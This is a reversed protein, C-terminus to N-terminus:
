LPPLDFEALVWDLVRRLGRETGHARHWCLHLTEESPAPDRWLAVLEGTKLATELLHRPALAVGHGSRAADLVLASRDFNLLTPAPTAPRSAALRVWRQRADQLLPLALIQDLELPGSPRPLDPHCVALLTIRTLARTELSPATPVLDGPLIALEHRGLTQTVAAEQVETTVSLDPHAARFRALRPMLWRTAFSPGVRFTIPPDRQLLRATATEIQALADGIEGLYVAGAPTLTVGRAERDFLRTGLSEELAKIRQSVAGQSIHLAGAADQFSGLRAAMAFVRLANLNVPPSM